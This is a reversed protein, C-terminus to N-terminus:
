LGYDNGAKQYVAPMVYDFGPLHDFIETHGLFLYGGPVLSASLRDLLKQTSEKDFYILVNRCFILDYQALMAAPALLNEQRFTVNDRLTRKVEFGKPSMFCFLQQWTKPLRVYDAMAYAGKRATELSKESIDSGDVHWLQCLIGQCRAEELAMALTYAEQGSSCGACWASLQTKHVPLAGDAILGSLSKFHSEERYFYTYHTTLADILELRMATGDPGIQNQLQWYEAFSPSHRLFCLVSLKSDVLYEKKRLDIGYQKYMMQAVLEFEVSSLKIM